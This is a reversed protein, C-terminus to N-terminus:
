KQNSRIMPLIKNNIKSKMLVVFIDTTIDNPLLGYGINQLRSEDFFPILKKQNETLYTIHPTNKGAYEIIEGIMNQYWFDKGSVKTIIAKM